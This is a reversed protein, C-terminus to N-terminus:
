KLSTFAIWQVTAVNQKGWGTESPEVRSLDVDRILFQDSPESDALPIEAFVGLFGVEQVEAEVQHYGTSLNGM